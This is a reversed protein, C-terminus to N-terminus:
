ALPKTWAYNGSAPEAPSVTMKLAPVATIGQKRKALAALVGRGM